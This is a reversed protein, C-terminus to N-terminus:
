IVPILLMRDDDPAETLGNANRISEVTSGTSKAIDWLQQGSSRRLILAPRGPDPTVAEGLQLGTICSVPSHAYVDIQTQFEQRLSSGSVTTEVEPFGSQWFVRHRNAKDSGMEWRTEGKVSAGQLQGEEDTYLVQFQGALKAELVNEDQQVQPYGCYFVADLVKGTNQWQSEAIVPQKCCDLLAPLEWESKQMEVSRFPSYADEVADVMVREYILYQAATGCKLELGGQENKELELVTPILRVTASAEENYSGDLDVYQSFPVETYWASLGNADRLVQLLVTGRFVLRNALIRQEKVQLKVCYRLIKDMDADTELAEQILFQKEGAEVPLVTPYTNKLLQVDEPVTGPRYLEVSSPEMAEGLMAVTSRFLIKRASVCRADMSELLPWVHITGDRQSEEFDWKMQFPIWTDLMRPESGDEPIYLAWALVGGSVTMGSSRWEKGRILVQGWAGLVRGVDPMGDPLRVEQTQEQTQVQSTLFHLCPCVEKNFQLEM